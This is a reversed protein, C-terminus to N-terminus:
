GTVLEGACKVVEVWLVGFAIELGHVRKPAPLSSCGCLSRNLVVAEVEVLLILGGTKFGGHGQKIGIVARFESAFRYQRRLM